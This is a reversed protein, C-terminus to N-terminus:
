RGGNTFVQWVLVSVFLMAAPSDFVGSAQNSYFVRASCM